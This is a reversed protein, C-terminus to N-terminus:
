THRWPARLKKRVTSSFFSYVVIHCCLFVQNDHLGRCLCLGDAFIQSRIVHDLGAHSVQTVQGLAGKAHVHLSIKGGVVAGDLSFLINDLIQFGGSVLALSDIEGGVRISLSLGDAPMQLMQQLQRVALRLAHREVLDGFLHHLIGDLMGAGDVLIQHVRLLRPAHQITDHAILERGQQPLLYPAPQGCPTDLGYSDPQHRLPFLLDRIEHGLFVPRQVNVQLVVGGRGEGGMVVTHVAFLVLRLVLRIGLADHLLQLLLPERHFGHLAGVLLAAGRRGKGGGAQLLLRGALQVHCGAAGHGDGLLEILAHVNGALAGHTQDGIHTGVGQTNGVLRLRLRLLQDARAVTVRVIRICGALVLRLRPCLIGVFGDAGGVRRQRRLLHLAVKGGLLVPQVPQDPAAKQRALHRVGDIVADGHLDAGPCVGQPAGGAIQLEGAVGGHILLAPVVVLLLLFGGQRRQRLALRHRGGTECGQLVKGLGRCPIGVGREDAGHLLVADSSGRGVRGSHGGDQITLVNDLLPLVQAQRRQSAHDVLQHALPERVNHVHFEGGAHLLLQVFHLGAVHLPLIQYALEVHREM